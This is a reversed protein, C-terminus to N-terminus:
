YVRFNVHFVANQPIKNTSPDTVVVGNAGTLDSTQIVELATAFNDLEDSGTGGESVPKVLGASYGSPYYVDRSM